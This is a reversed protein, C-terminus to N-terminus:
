MRNQKSTDPKIKQQTWQLITLKNSHLNFTNKRRGFIRQIRKFKNRSIRDTLVIGIKKNKTVKRILKKFDNANQTKSTLIWAYRTFHDVLLHIYKKTSRAGGFRGITDISIIKLPREALGLQSMLGYKDQGRSKNRM